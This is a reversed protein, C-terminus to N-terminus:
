MKSARIAENDARWKMYKDDHQTINLDEVRSNLLLRSRESHVKKRDEDMQEDYRQKFKREM